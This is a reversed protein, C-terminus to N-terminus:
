LIKFKLLLIVIVMLILQLYSVIRDWRHVGSHNIIQTQLLKIEDKIEKKFDKFEDQLDNAIKEVVAFREKLTM